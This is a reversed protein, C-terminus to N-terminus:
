RGPAASAFQRPQKVATVLFMPLHVVREACAADAAEARRLGETEGASLPLEGLIAFRTAAPPRLRELLDVRVDFGAAKLLSPLKRGIRPDAAARALARIWIQRTAIQPPFEIMGGYDPELAIWVGGPELVRFVERVVTPADLWLLAYQSFVLDFHNASFPLRAADGCVRRAGELSTRGALLAERSVDLAVVYGGCRRVLEGTVAGTGCALDLVRKRRAVHVRRLLRARAPALWRAQENLSSPSPLSPGNM